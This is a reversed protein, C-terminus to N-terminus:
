SRNFFENFNGKVPNIMKTFVLSLFSSTYFIINLTCKKPQLKLLKFYVSKRNTEWPSEKVKSLIDFYYRIEEESKEIKKTFFFSDSLQKLILTNAKEESLVDKLMTEIKSLSIILEKLSKKNFKTKTVGGTNQMYHVFAM